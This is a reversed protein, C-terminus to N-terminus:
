RCLHSHCLGPSLCGGSPSLSPPTQGLRRGAEPPSSSPSSSCLCIRQPTRPCHRLTWICHTSPQGPCPNGIWKQKGLYYQKSGQFVDTSETNTEQRRDSRVKFVLVWPHKEKSGAGAMTHLLSTLKCQPKWRIYGLMGDMIWSGTQPKKPRLLDKAAKLLPHTGFDWHCLARTQQFHHNRQSFLKSYSSLLLEEPSLSWRHRISEPKKRRKETLRGSLIQDRRNKVPQKEM